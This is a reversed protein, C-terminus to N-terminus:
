PHWKGKGPVHLRTMIWRRPAEKRLLSSRTRARPANYPHPSTSVPGMSAPTPSGRPFAAPVLSLCAHQGHFEGPCRRNAGSTDEETRHNPRISHRGVRERPLSLSSLPALHTVCFPMAAVCRIRPRLPHTRAYQEDARGTCDDDVTTQTTPTVVDPTCTSRGTDIAVCHWLTCREPSCIRLASVDHICPPKIVVSPCIAHRRAATSRPRSRVIVWGLQNFLCTRYEPALNNNDPLAM